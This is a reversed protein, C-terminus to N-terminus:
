YEIPATFFLDPDCLGGGPAWVELHLHPGSSIGTSGLAAIHQGRTVMQGKTVYLASCHAYLTVYGDPHQIRVHYGWSYHWGAEIVLGEEAAYIPAGMVANLDRGRHSAGRYGQSSFLIDPLPFFYEGTGADAVPTNAIYENTIAPAVATGVVVIEDVPESLVTSMGEVAESYAFAGDIYVRDYTVERQGPVGEQATTRQGYAYEGTQEELTDFAIEEVVAERLTRKVQLRPTQREILLGTGAAPIFDDGEAALAPNTARLSETTAGNATAIEALNEEGRCAYEVQETTNGDLWAIIDGVDEVSSLLFIDDREPDCEVEQVFGPVADPMAPDISLKEDLWARLAEGDYTVGVLRGDISLGTAQVNGGAEPSGEEAAVLLDNALQDKSSISVAKEISLEPNIEYSYDEGSQEAARQQRSRMINKADELVAQDTIYGITQGDVKVALAYQMGFIGYVVFVMGALAAAPLLVALLSATKSRPAGGQRAHAGRGKRRFPAIFDQAFSTFFRGVSRAIGGVAWGLVKAIFLGADRLLRFAWIVKCETYFGLAYFFGGVARLFASGGEGRNAPFSTTRGRGKAPRRANARKASKPSPARRPGPLPAPAAASRYVSRGDSSAAKDAQRTGSPAKQGGTTTHRQKTGHHTGPSYPEPGKPAKSESESFPM